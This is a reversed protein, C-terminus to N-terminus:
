HIKKHRIGVCHNQYGSISVTLCWMLGWILVHQSLKVNSKIVTGYVLVAIVKFHKGRFYKLNIQKLGLM